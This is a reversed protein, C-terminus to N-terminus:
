PDTSQYQRVDVDNHLGKARSLSLPEVPSRFPALRRTEVQSCDESLCVLNRDLIEKSLPHKSLLLPM